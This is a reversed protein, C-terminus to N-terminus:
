ISTLSRRELANQAERYACVRLSVSLSENFYRDLEHEFDATLLRAIGDCLASADADTGEVPVERVLVRQQLGRGAVHEVFADTGTLVQDFGDGVADIREALVHV